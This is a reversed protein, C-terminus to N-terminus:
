RRRRAGRRATRILGDMLRAMSHAEESTAEIGAREAAAAMHEPKTMLVLRAGPSPEAPGVIAWVMPRGKARRRERTFREGHRSCPRVLLKEIRRPSLGTAAALEATTQPEGAILTADIVRQVWRDLLPTPAEYDIEPWWSSREGSM